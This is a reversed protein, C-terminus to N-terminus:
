WMCVNKSSCSIKKYKKKEHMNNMM